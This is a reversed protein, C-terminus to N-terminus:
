DRRRRVLAFSAGLLGLLATSPEPVVSLNDFLMYNSGPNTPNSTEWFAGFTAIGAGAANPITGTFSSGGVTATFAVDNGAAAAFTVVLDYFKGEETALRPPGPFVVVPANTGTSWSMYHFALDNEPLAEQTDPELTFSFLNNGAPDELRFGFKDRVADTVPAPPNNSATSISDVLYFLTRFTTNPGGGSPVLPTTAGGPYTRSVFVKPVSLGTSYGITASKSGWPAYGFSPIIEGPKFSDLTTANVAWGDQGAINGDTFSDFDTSYVAGNAPAGLALWCLCASSLLTQPKKPRNM